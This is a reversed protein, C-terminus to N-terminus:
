GRGWKLVMSSYTQGNGASFSAVLDGDRLLGESQAMSWILPINVSGLNGFSRFTDLSRARDMGTFEQTVARLWPGGQHGSYFDVDHPALNVQALADTVVEKCRDVSGVIIAQAM